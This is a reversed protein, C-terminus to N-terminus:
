KTRLSAAISKLEDLNRRELTKDYRADTSMRISYLTGDVLALTWGWVGGGERRTERKFAWRGELYPCKVGDIEIKGSSAIEMKYDRNEKLFRSIRESVDQAIVGKLYTPQWRVEIERYGSTDEAAWRIMGRRQSGAGDMVMFGGPLDMVFQPDVVELVNKRYVAQINFPLINSQLYDDTEPLKIKELAEKLYVGNRIMEVCQRELGTIYDINEKVADKGCVFGQAPVFYRVKMGLFSKLIDVWNEYDAGDDGMNPHYGNVLVGGTYVIRESPVVVICDGATHAPGHYEISVDVGGLDVLMKGGLFTDPLVVRADKVMSYVDPKYNRYYEKYVPAYKELAEATERRAIITVNEKEFVENGWTHDPHYHTNVLYRIPRDTVSRIAELLEGALKPTFRSDVVLVSKEGVVFGSNAGLGESSSPGGAIYAYCHESLKVLGKKEIDGDSCGGLSFLISIIFFLVFIRLRMGGGHLLFKVAGSIGAKSIVSM